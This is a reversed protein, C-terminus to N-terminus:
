RHVHKTDDGRAASQWGLVRALMQSRNSAGTREILKKIHDNVTSVTINLREAIEDTRRGDLLSAVVERERPTIFFRKAARLLTNRRRTKEITVALFHGDASTLDNIRLLLFPLPMATANVPRTPDEAWETTLERITTEFLEPLRMGFAPGGLTGEAAADNRNGMVTRYTRDLIFLMPKARRLPEDTSPDADVASIEPNLAEESLTKALALLQIDHATFPGLEADRLLVLMADGGDPVTLAITMAHPYVADLVAAIPRQDTRRQQRRYCALFRNAEAREDADPGCCFSVLTKSQLRGFRWARFAVLRAVLEVIAREHDHPVGDRLHRHLLNVFFDPGNAFLAHPEIPHAPLHRM